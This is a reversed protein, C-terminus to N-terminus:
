QTMGFQLACDPIQSDLHVIGQFQGLLCLSSQNGRGSLPWQKKLRQGASLPGWYNQYFLDAAGTLPREKRFGERLTGIEPMAGRYRVMEHRVARPLLRGM